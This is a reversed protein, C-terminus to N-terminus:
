FPFITLWKTQDYWKTERTRIIYSNLSYPLQSNVDFVYDIQQRTINNAGEALAVVYSSTDAFVFGAPAAGPTKNETVTLTRADINQYEVELAGVGQM